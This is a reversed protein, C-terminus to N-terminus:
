SNKKLEEEKKVLMAWINTATSPAITHGDLQEAWRQTLYSAMFSWRADNPPSNRLSIGIDFKLELGNSEEIILDEKESRKIRIRVAFDEPVILEEM